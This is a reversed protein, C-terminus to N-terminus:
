KHALHQWPDHPTGAAFLRGRKGCGGGLLVDLWGRDREIFIPRETASCRDQTPQHPGLRLNKCNWCDKM